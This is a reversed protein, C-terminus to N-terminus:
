YVYRAMERNGAMVDFSARLTAFHTLCRTENLGASQRKSMVRSCGVTVGLRLTSAPSLMQDKPHFSIRHGARTGVPLSACTLSRVATKLLIKQGPLIRCFMEESTATPIESVASM